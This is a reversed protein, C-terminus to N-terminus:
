AKVLKNKNLQKREEKRKEKETADHIRRKKRLLWIQKAREERGKMMSKYLKRHKKKIMKERLRYEQKERKAKEWPDEKTIKGVQVKMKKKKELQTKKKNKEEDEAIQVNDDDDEEEEISDADSGSSLDDQVEIEEEKSDNKDDNEAEEDSEAELNNLKYDPDMLAREEPPIYTQDQRNETFPSLHPPLVAGMLYKEVPLLERANVSDFIWQPQIYYRSVYQKNMSPRDVIQHTITEDNEDFTAGVFLLKDWSVEGGFCRLIFVLPERPVERNIFVKINKFLNKLKKIKEAELRAAEIKAADTENSFQDIEIEDDETAPISSDLSVLSVNLASIRESVYAEEDVLTREINGTNTLKPPYHLNLTHYLRYNVFGLMVVYFEVFTSMVKFDVENKAQPEFCFHHPVIWTITQGKIEAQYYYGKISIFVKRLAKAYIVAHLFEITLRRCLLSQDRPIHSLSPFTSFLFCLTLCDDLDRLADKFTPYREKVIHDLKLTPHNSLYRKVKAFDKMAKARGIKRNFIKYDRLKWIIPEHMLFQIDKKHYLTKIGPEGKQARKRNRPERPYIGKLICLKRFDNLTLQLKRLATRRTMFQAGEGSQYKKKGIVVM